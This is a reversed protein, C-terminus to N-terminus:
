RWGTKEDDAPVQGIARQSSGDTNMRYFPHPADGNYVEVIIEENNIEFILSLYPPYKEKIEQDAEPYRYEFLTEIGSGDIGVRCLRVGVTDNEEEIHETGDETTKYKIDENIETIYYIYDGYRQLGDISMEAETEAMAFLSKDQWRYMGIYDNGGHRFTYLACEEDCDYFWTSKGPLEESLEWPAIGEAFEVKKVEWDRVRDTATWWRSAAQQLTMPQDLRVEYVIDYAPDEEEWHKEMEAFESSRKKRIGIGSEWDNKKYDTEYWGYGYTEESSTLYWTGEKYTYTYDESWRWASGGYTHTTFSCGEATLPLYPDGYVGGEGRTRILKEDQFDLRYQGEGESAVAFLIRPPWGLEGGSGMSSEPDLVGIHDVIGDGNFDIGVDDMLEWGDPVFDAIEKGKGPLEPASVARKELPEVRERFKREMVTGTSDAIQASATMGDGAILVAGLIGAMIFGAKKERRM